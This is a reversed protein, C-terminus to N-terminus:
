LFRTASLWEQHHRSLDAPAWSENWGEFAMRGVLIVGRELPRRFLRYGIRTEEVTATGLEHLDAALLLRDRGGVRFAIQGGPNGAGESVIGHFTGGIAEVDVRVLVEDVPFRTLLKIESELVGELAMWRSVSQLQADSPLHHSVVLNPQQLVVDAVSAAISTVSRGPLRVDVGQLLFRLGADGEEHLRVRGSLLSGATPKEVEVKWEGLNFTFNADTEQWLPSM